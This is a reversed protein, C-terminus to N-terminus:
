QNFVDGRWWGLLQEPSRNIRGGDGFRVQSFEAGDNQVNMFCTGRVDFVLLSWGVTPCAQPQQNWVTVHDVKIRPADARPRDERPKHVASIGDDALPKRSFLLKAFFFTGSAPTRHIM